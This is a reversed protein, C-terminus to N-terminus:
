MLGTGSKLTLLAGFKIANDVRQDAHSHRLTNRHYQDIVNNRALLAHQLLNISFYKLKGFLSRKVPSGSGKQPLQVKDASLHKNAIQNLLIGYLLRKLMLGFCM